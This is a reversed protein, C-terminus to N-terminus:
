KKEYKGRNNYKIARGKKTLYYFDMRGIDSYKREGSSSGLPDLIKVSDTYYWSYSKGEPLPQGLKKMDIDM